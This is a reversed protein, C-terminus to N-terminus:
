RNGKIGQANGKGLKSAQAMRKQEDAAKRIGESAKFAKNAKDMVETLSQKIPKM